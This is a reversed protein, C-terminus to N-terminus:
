PEKDRTQSDSLKYHAPILAPPPSNEQMIDGFVTYFLNGQLRAVTSYTYMTCLAKICKVIFTVVLRYERQQM